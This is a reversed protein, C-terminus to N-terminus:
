HVPKSLAAVESMEAPSLTWAIVAKSNAQAQEASTAGPIVTAVGPLSALWSLALEHLTHGHRAAFRSLRDILDFNAENFYRARREPTARALRTGEAPEADRRYKGTLLGSALPFFPLYAVGDSACRPIVEDLDDQHVLSCENQVSVFGPAGLSAAAASAEGIRALTVNSCGVEIAKGAAVLARLAGLTEAVPTAPDPQHLMFLDIHDTRLRRLSNECSRTAWEASGPGVGPPPALMGFKTGIAVERRHAGLARGLYEESLGDGYIDATDFFTVGADLAAAVVEVTRREDIVRGFNNCGIGAVSVELSGITRTKM